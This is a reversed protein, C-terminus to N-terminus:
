LNRYYDDCEARYQEINCTNDVIFNFEGHQNTFLSDIESRTLEDGQMYYIYLRVLVDKYLLNDNGVVNGYIRYYSKEEVLIDKKIGESYIECIIDDEGVIENIVEYYTNTTLGLKSQREYSINNLGRNYDEM